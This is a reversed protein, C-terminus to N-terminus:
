GTRLWLFSQGRGVGGGAGKRPGLMNGFGSFIPSSQYHWELNHHCQKSLGARTHPLASPSVPARAGKGEEKKKIGGLVGELHLAKTSATGEERVAGVEARRWASEETDKLNFSLEKEKLNTEKRKQISIRVFVVVIM